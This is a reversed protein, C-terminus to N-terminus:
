SSAWGFFVFGEIKTSPKKQMRKGKVTFTPLKSSEQFSLGGQSQVKVIQYLTDKEFYVIQGKLYDMAEKKTKFKNHSLIDGKSNQISFYVEGDSPHIKLKKKGGPSTKAVDTISVEIVTGARKRGGEMKKRVLDQAELRNKARVTVEFEKEAVVKSDAFAVCGASDWKGYDNIHKEAYELAQRKTMIDRTAMVFSDKEAITGTYGRSGYEYQAEQVLSTFVRNANSGRGADIFTSAGMENERELDNLYKIM